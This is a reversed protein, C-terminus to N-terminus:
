IIPFLLRPLKNYNEINDDLLEIFKTILKFGDYKDYNPYIHDFTEKIKTIILMKTIILLTM